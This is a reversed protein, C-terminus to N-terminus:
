AEAKKAATKKAAAKKVPKHEEAEEVLEVDGWLVWSGVIEPPDSIIDGPKYVDDGIQIDKRAKYRSM